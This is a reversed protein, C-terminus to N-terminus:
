LFLFVRSISCSIFLLSPSRFVAFAITFIAGHIHVVVKLNFVVFQAGHLGHHAETPKASGLALLHSAVIRSSDVFGLFSFVALIHVTNSTEVSRQTWASLRVMAFSTMNRMPEFGTKGFISM